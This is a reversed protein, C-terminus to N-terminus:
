LIGVDVEAGVPEDGGLTALAMEAVAVLLGGDSVDHCASVRADAILARVFDGNRREM